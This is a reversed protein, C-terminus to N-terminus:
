PAVACLITANPGYGERIWGLSEMQARVVASTMYRHNADARNNFVRYVPVTGGPCAGTAQDPLDLQFVNDSEMQWAAAFRENVQYCEAPSASYFHSALGASPLGYYRCVPNITGGSSSGAALARFQYGTRSWGPLTGTDLVLIENTDATIFYHDLGAHHFEIVDVLSVPPPLLTLVLSGGTIARARGCNMCEVGGSQSYLTALDIPVTTPSGDLTTSPTIRLVRSSIGDGGAVSNFFITPRTTDGGTYYGSPDSFAVSDGPLYTFALLSPGAQVHINWSSVTGTADDFAFSGAGTAGDSFTLGQIQWYRTAAGAGGAVAGLAIASALVAVDLLRQLKRDNM